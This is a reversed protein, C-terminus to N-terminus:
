ASRNGREKWRNIRLTRQMIPPLEEILNRAKEAAERSLRNEGLKDYVEALQLYTEAAFRGVIASSAMEPPMAQIGEIAKLLLERTQDLQKRTRLVGALLSRARLYGIHYFTTEPYEEHAQDCLTIVRRCLREAEDLENLDLLLDALACSCRGLLDKYESVDPYQAILSEAMAVAREIQERQELTADYGRDSLPSRNTVM